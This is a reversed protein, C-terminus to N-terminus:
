CAGKGALVAGPTALLIKLDTSLSCTRAYRIDLRVMEDFTTRSRGTVQWLGTIGPKADLIRRCHWSKYHEVEYPIPPRPGVLSMEGRLVNLLQPLEDLSTKRLVRGIPTVRPDNTIKYVHGPAPQPMPGGAQIFRAVFEHHVGQDAKVSMTRFKFMTFTKMMQGVRVQRFFVPGRSTLKVALAILLLLPSLATLLTLSGVIDLARKVTAYFAQRRGPTRLQVLLPEAPLLGEGAAGNPQSHVYFQCSLRGATEADARATLARWLRNELECRRAKDFADLDTLVVGIVVGQEFWGLLDTERTAAAIADILPKWATPSPPSELTALMIVLPQNSRDARQRYRILSSRFLEESLVHPHRVRAPDRRRQPIARAAPRLAVGSVRHPAISVAQGFVRLRARSRRTAAMRHRKTAL